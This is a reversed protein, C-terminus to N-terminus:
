SLDVGQAQTEQLAAMRLSPSVGRVRSGERREQQVRRLALQNTM